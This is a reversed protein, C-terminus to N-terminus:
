DVVGYLFIAQHVVQNFGKVHIDLVYEKLDALERELGARQSAAEDQALTMEALREEVEKMERRGITAGHRGHTPMM